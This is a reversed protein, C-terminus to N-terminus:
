IFGAQKRLEAAKAQIDDPVPRFNCLTFDTGAKTKTQTAELRVLRGHCPNDASCAYQSGKGDVENQPVNMVAALFAKVNGPSADHRFNVAWSMRTGKLRSPVESELVDFEAIFVDEGKRSRIMKLVDIYLLPYVGPQPYVGGFRGESAAVRDFPSAAPPPAAAPAPTSAPAKDGFLPM